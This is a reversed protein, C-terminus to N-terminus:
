QINIMSDTAPPLFNTQDVAVNPDVMMSFNSAVPLAPGGLQAQM